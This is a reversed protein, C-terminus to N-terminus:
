LISLFMVADQLSEILDVNPIGCIYMGVEGFDKMSVNLMTSLSDQHATDQALYGDCM